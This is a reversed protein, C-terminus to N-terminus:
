GPYGCWLEYGAVGDKTLKQADSLLEDWTIPPKDPDLGAAKFLKRNYFLISVDAVAPLAYVRGRWLGLRLMAKNPTDKFALSNFRDTVDLLAGMRTYRPGDILDFAVLDPAKGAKVAETFRAVFEDSKVSTHEVRVSKGAAKLRANYADVGPQVMEQSYR